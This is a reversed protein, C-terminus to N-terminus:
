YWMHERYLDLTYRYTDYDVTPPVSHDTAFVLRAGRAKMGEIYSVVERKVIERDNTELCRTDLGGIFALTNGYKEAFLFPDNHRAKREIPNLADFGAEVVLPVAQAVSGCSHLVVPLDYSHFFDVLEHYYPFILAAMTKPSAFLGQSYGIDENLWIGDPLGVQEFIYTYCRKYFDTYVRNFDHIWGPDTLLSTYLTVDGLSQRLTEWIFVQGFCYWVGAQKLEAVMKRALRLNIREADWELLYPKYDREWIDRTTMRFDIHEPAGMKHKWYKLAAGAGNRRVVWQDTEEVLEEYGRLPWQDFSAIRGGGGVLDFGFHQWPQIAEEVWGDKAASDLMGDEKRRIDEGKLKFVRETPYGQKVWKFITDSWFAERLGVRLPSQGKRLLANVVDRSTL